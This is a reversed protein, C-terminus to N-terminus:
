MLDEVYERSHVCGDYSEIFAYNNRGDFYLILQDRGDYNVWCSRYEGYSITLSLAESVEGEESILFDNKIVVSYLDLRPFKNASVTVYVNGFLPSQARVVSLNGELAISFKVLGFKTNSEGSVDINSMEINSGTGSYILISDDLEDTAASSFALAGVTGFIIRRRM